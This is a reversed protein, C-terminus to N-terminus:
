PPLRPPRAPRHGPPRGPQVPLARQRGAGGLRGLPGADRHAPGARQRHGVLAAPLLLIPVLLIASTWATAFCMWVPSTGGSVFASLVVEPPERLIDPWDFTSPSM